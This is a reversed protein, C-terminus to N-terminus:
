RGAIRDAMKGAMAARQVSANRNAPVSYLATLWARDWATLDPQTTDKAVFLNTISPVTPQKPPLRMPALSVMAIYSSLADLSQGKAYTMDILVTAGGISLRAKTGILSSSYDDIYGSSNESSAMGGTQGKEMSFAMSLAAHEGGTVAQGYKSEPKLDYWWRVPLEEEILARREEGTMGRLTYPRKAVVQRVIARADTTFSILLNPKCGAEALKIGSETAVERLRAEIKAAQAEAVGMISPCVKQNWRAFQDAGGPAAAVSTMFTKAASRLEEPTRAQGEVLITAEDEPPTSQGATGGALLLAISLTLSM